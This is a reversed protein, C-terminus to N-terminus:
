IVVNIAIWLTLPIGITVVPFTFLDIYSTIAGFIMFTLLVIYDDKNRLYFLFLIELFTLSILSNFQLSMMTAIPNWFLWLLVLPVCYLKKNESTFKVLILSFLVLQIMSIINRIERYDFFLLLPKLFVLYGHWYRGYNVQMDPDANKRYISILSEVGDQGTLQDRTNNIAAYWIKEHRHHAATLLMLADTHNDLQVGSANHYLEEHVFIDSAKKVNEEMRPSPLAYVALLLIYGIIWMAVIIMQIAVAKKIRNDIKSM